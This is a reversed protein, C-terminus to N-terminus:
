WIGLWRRKKPQVEPEAAEGRYYSCLPSGPPTSLPTPTHGQAGQVPGLPAM